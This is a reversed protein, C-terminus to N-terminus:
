SSCISLDKVIFLNINTEAVIIFTNKFCTAATLRLSSSWAENYSRCSSFVSCNYISPGFVLQFTSSNNFVNPHLFFHFPKNFRSLQPRGTILPTNWVPTLTIFHFILFSEFAIHFIKSSLQTTLSKCMLTASLSYNRRLYKSGNVGM